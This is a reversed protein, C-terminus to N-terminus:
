SARGKTNNGNEWVRRKIVASVTESEKVEAIPQTTAETTAGFRSSLAMFTTFCIVTTVALTGTAIVNESPVAVVVIAVLPAVIATALLIVVRAVFTQRNHGLSHRPSLPRFAVSTFM